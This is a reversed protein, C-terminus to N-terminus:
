MTLKYTDKIIINNNSHTSIGLQRLIKSRQIKNILEKKNPFKYGDEYTNNNVRKYNIVIRAKGKKIEAHNRVM